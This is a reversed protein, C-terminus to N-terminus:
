YKIIFNVYVNHVNTQLGGTAGTAGSGGGTTGAQYNTYHQDVSTLSTGGGVVHLPQGGGVFVWGHRATTRYSPNKNTGSEHRHNPGAHTHSGGAHTHYGVGGYQFSGVQDGASAGIQVGLRTNRDPDNGSGYAVGRLHLGQTTPIRFNLGTTTGWHTGIVAFLDAFDNRNLLAGNCLLFGDPINTNDGGFAVITGVPVGVQKILTTM